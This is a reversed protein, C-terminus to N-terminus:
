AATRRLERWILLAFITTAVADRETEVLSPEIWVRGRGRLEVTAVMAERDFVIYGPGDGVGRDPLFESADAYVVQFRREPGLLMGDLGYRGALELRWGPRAGAPDLLDCDLKGRDRADDGIITMLLCRAGWSDRGSSHLAFEYRHSVTRSDMLPWRRTAESGQFGRLAYSGVSLLAPVGTATRAGTESRSVQTLPRRGHVSAQCASTAALLVVLASRQLSWSGRWPSPRCRGHAQSPANPTEILPVQTSTM